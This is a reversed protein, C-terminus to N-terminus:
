AATEALRWNIMYMSKGSSDQSSISSNELRWATGAFLWEVLEDLTEKPPQRGDFHLITEKNILENESTDRKEAIFFIHGYHFSQEKAWANQANIAEALLDITEQCWDEDPLSPLPSSVPEAIKPIRL